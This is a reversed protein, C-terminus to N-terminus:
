EWAVGNTILQEKEGESLQGLKGKLFIYLAEGVETDHFGMFLKIKKGTKTEFLIKMSMPANAERTAKVDSISEYNLSVDAFKSGVLHLFSPRITISTKDIIITRMLLYFMVVFYASVIIPVTVLMPGGLGESRYYFFVAPGTLFCCLFFIWVGITSPFSKPNQLEKLLTRVKDQEKSSQRLRYIWRDILPIVVLGMIILTITLADM